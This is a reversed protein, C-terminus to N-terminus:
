GSIPIRVTVVTGKRDIGSIDIKGGILHIRERMGLLGLTCQGSKEDDTIGRGNDTVTLIFECDEEQMQINVRAAQAHRLINTLAEQFVRFVATSQERSLHVNELTCDYEVTIGTREQFQRAQWEIAETLGLTDLAVPRLESAIRRVTNITTDTLRMMATIRKRLEPLQSQDGSESLGEDVAELDWRLSTLAAGLEDHIERAIRTAEEERAAQLSASLARLQESTAQLQEVARKHETIDRAIGLVNIVSGNLDLEPFLRVSFYRRGAPMPWTLEYEYSEGTDFVAAIRERVQALEDEKVDLGADQIVAGIPKGTLAEAPLGYAEVVAPNVYTRRFERDYRIIQDPTNEVIARFEQERAHLLAEAQKRESIKRRLEENVVRLENTREIVRQELEENLREIEQKARILAPTEIVEWEGQRRAIAFQHTRVVDFIQDGTIAVLPYTCSAITRENPFLKELETEFQRLENPGADRLWAPSGNVRMGAYGRALAENLKDKFRNAVRLPDFTKGSLFWDEHGVVEISREAVYRDLDPLAIRLASRAEEVTLLESSSIVWLCFEKCELGAKFYPILIDLLDQKTEYFSCFHAGWPVDGVVSIGTKRLEIAM